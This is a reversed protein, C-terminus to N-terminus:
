SRSETDGSQLRSQPQCDRHKMGTLFYRQCANHLQESVAGGPDHIQAAPSCEHASTMGVHRNEIWLLSPCKVCGLRTGLRVACREITPLEGSFNHSRYYFSPNDKPACLGNRQRM